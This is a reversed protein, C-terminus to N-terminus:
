RFKWSAAEEIARGLAKVHDPDIEQIPEMIELVSYLAEGARSFDGNNDEQLSNLFRLGRAYDSM